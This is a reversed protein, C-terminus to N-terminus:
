NKVVFVKCNWCNDNTSFLKKLYGEFNWFMWWGNLSYDCGLFHGFSGVVIFLSRWKGWNQFSKSIESRGEGLFSFKLLDQCKSNLNTQLAEGWGGSFSFKPLDQCKSNSNMQLLGEGGGLSFKPLDQCEPPWHVMIYKSSSFLM